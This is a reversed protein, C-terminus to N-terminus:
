WVSVPSRRGAHGENADGWREDGDGIREASREVDAGVVDGHDFAGDVRGVFTAVEPALVGDGGVTADGEAGAVLEMEEVM